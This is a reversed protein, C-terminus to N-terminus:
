DRDKSILDDGLRRLHDLKQQLSAAEGIVDPFTWQVSGTMGLDILRQRQDADILEVMPIVAEFPLESRGAEARIQAIRKLVEEAEAFTQGSGSWGDCLQGARRLAADNQGGMWIPVPKTPAPEMKMPPFAFTEGEHEVVKGSLLKRIVEIAERMSAGRKEFTRGLVDFEERMWGAGVGLVARNKSYVASSGVFRAIEVPHRLPLIYVNTAFRIRSTHQALVAITMWPDPFHSGPPFHPAGEEVGEYKYPYRSEVREPSFVHDSVLLGEFGAEEAVKAIEILDDPHEYGLAQWYQM